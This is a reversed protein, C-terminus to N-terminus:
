KTRLVKIMLVLMSQTTFSTRVSKITSCLMHMKTRYALLRFNFCMSYRPSVLIDKEFNASEVTSDDCVFWESGRLVFAKYHGSHPSIGYHSLVAYLKYHYALLPHHLTEHFFILVRNKKKSDTFRPLQIIFIEPPVVFSWTNSPEGCDRCDRYGIAFDSLLESLTFFDMSNALQPLRFTTDSSICRSEYTYIYVRAQLDAHKERLLAPYLPPQM